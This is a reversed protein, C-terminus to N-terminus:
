RTGLTVPSQVAPRHSRQQLFLVSELRHLGRYRTQLNASVSHHAYDGLVTALEPSVRHDNSRARKQTAPNVNAQLGPYPSSTCSISRHNVHGLM